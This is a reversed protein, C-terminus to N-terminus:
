IQMSRMVLHRERYGFSSERVSSSDQDDLYSDETVTPFHFAAEVPTTVLLPLQVAGSIRGASSTVM